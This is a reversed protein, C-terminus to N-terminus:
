IKNEKCFNSITIAATILHTTTVVKGSDQSIYLDHEKDLFEEIKIFPNNICIKGQIFIVNISLSL